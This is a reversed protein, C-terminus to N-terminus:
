RIQELKEPTLQYRKQAVERIYNRDHSVSIIAGPFDSLIERIIPQSTPSFHRTPEDLILVNNGALVMKALFLKAKQGGSLGMLSHSIEDKTFRLSALLTRAKEAETVESLFDLPSLNPNLFDDYHQPMYGLSLDTRSSLENMIKKLLRTKGVGNSGTIVLKDQGKILLNATQGTQLPQEIWNILIKNTSLPTTESFFLNIADMDQPIETFKETEKEYRKEQSLINKLKKALLRGAADNKTHRLQHEVSQHIRHSRIMRDRHEEREKNARQLQREFTKKRNEKYNRYNSQFYSARPTSRKKLLELHLIATATNELFTEDHSIFIITKDSQAIFQELWNVSDPDLDSSPEDLILLDPDQALIKLLQIKLKEGGSLSYLTQNNDELKEVELQFREALKYFLSFDFMSYDMDGYLFDSVSQELQNATLSQPLYGIHHFHNIVKGEVKIYDSISTIDILAKILSSKGTGEEGIIALKDGDNVVLGLDKVLDQLDKQHTLTLHQTQLM